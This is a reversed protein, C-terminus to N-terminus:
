DEHHRTFTKEAIHQMMHIATRIAMAVSITKFITAAKHIPKKVADQFAANKEHLAARNSQLATVTRTTTNITRALTYLRSMTIAIFIITTVATIGLIWMGATHVTFDM